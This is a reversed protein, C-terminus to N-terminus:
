LEMTLIEDISKLKTYSIRIMKYGHKKAWKDKIRDRKQSVLLRDKTKSYLGIRSHQEGDFEIAIKLKPLWFDLPLCRINILDPFRREREYDVKTQKLFLEITQVGKSNKLDVCKFCGKGDLHHLPRQYFFGHIECKIKVHTKNNLYEAKDYNFKNGHVRRADTIFQERGKTYRHKQAESVCKKCTSGKNIHDGARQDFLGHIKCKIKVHIRAGVYDVHSYDFKNGHAEKARRIFEITDLKRM